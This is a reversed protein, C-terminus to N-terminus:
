LLQPMNPTHSRFWPSLRTWLHSAISRGGAPLSVIGRQGALLSLSREPDLPVSGLFRPALLEYRAKHDPPQAESDLPRVPLPGGFPACLAEHFPVKSAMPTVDGLAAPFSRGGRVRVWLPEKVSRAFVEVDDQAISIRLEKHDESGIALVEAGRELYTGVRSALDHAVVTGESPARMTLAAYEVERERLQRELSVIEERESQCAATNKEFRLGRMRGASQQVRLRLDRVALELKENELLALVDGAAVRQGTQVCVQRLFGPSETRVIVPPAYEVIAPARYRFPWPLYAAAVVIAGGLVAVVAICRARQPQEWPTGFLFYRFAAIVPTGIWITVAAVALILGAGHFLNAATLALGCCVVVRWAAAALGYAAIILKRPWSGSPPNSTVGCLYRRLLHQMFQQGQSALNPIDLLDSLIYYGDFRMLPNLNFLLTTISCLLLLQFCLDSIVGPPMHTWILAAVTAVLLEAYVGALATQIRPWKSRFRWASTVDIYAVPAALILVVGAERVAGGHRKCVLGHALEHLSKVVLWSVAMWTWRGNSLIGRSAAAFRDWQLFVQHFAVLGLLLAGALVPWSFLWETWPVLRALWRDPHLLPVRLFMPNWRTLGQEDANTAVDPQAPRHAASEPLYALEHAVLWRCIAAAQDDHFAHEPEVRAMVALAERVTTQGDLLSIFTYEPVGVRYFTSNVKDEIM